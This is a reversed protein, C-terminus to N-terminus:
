GARPSLCSPRPVCELPVWRADNTWGPVRRGSCAPGAAGGPLEFLRRKAGTNAAWGWRTRSEMLRGARYLVWSQGSLDAATGSTAVREFLLDAGHTLGAAQPGVGAGDGFRDGDGSCLDARADEGVNLILAGGVLELAFDGFGQAGDAGIGPAHQLLDLLFADILHLAQEECPCREGSHIM